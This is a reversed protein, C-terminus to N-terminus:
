RSTFSEGHHIVSSDGKYSEKKVAKLKQELEAKKSGHSSTAAHQKAQSASVVIGCVNCKLQEDPMLIM